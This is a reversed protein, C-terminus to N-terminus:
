AVRVKTGALDEAAKARSKALSKQRDVYPQRQEEVRKTNRARWGARNAVAVARLANNVGLKCFISQMQTRITAVGVYQYAAIEEANMGDVLGGLVQKERTSLEAM